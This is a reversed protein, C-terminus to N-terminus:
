VNFRVSIIDGDLVTYEKGELRLTGQNRAEALSGAEIFDNYHVVEARIFGRELDSHIVGAAKVAPSGETVTWARCEDDGVTFFSILGLLEYSKQIVRNCATEKIEYDDLFLSADEPSLQAIEAELRASVAVFQLHDPFRNILDNELEATRAIDEEAINLAVLMPKRTLFAFSRIVKEEELKLDLNALPEENELAHQCRELLDLERLLAPDKVKMVQKRLREIRGAAVSLDSFLFEDLVIDIDRIPDVSGESHVIEENVFQRTLYLVADTGKINSIFEPSFGEKRAAGRVLGSLDVYEIVTPVKREPQFMDTLRDLREDQVKAQALNPDRKGGGFGVEVNSGTLANFLSTKGTQPLGVIGIKM